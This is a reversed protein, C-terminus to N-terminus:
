LVSDAAAGVPHTIVEVRGKQPCPSACITVCTSQPLGATTGM